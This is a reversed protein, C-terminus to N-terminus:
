DGRILPITYGIDQLDNSINVDGDGDMWAVTQKQLAELRGAYHLYWVAHATNDTDQGRRRLDDIITQLSDTM